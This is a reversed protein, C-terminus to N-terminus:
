YNTVKGTERKLQEFRMMMQKLLRPNKEAINNTQGPDDKINYLEYTSKANYPPIMIFDGQRYAYNFMGEIVLESRGKDSKGLFANLTNQSDTRENYPQGVLAALSALLDMQCVFTDSVSPKLQEPWRVMFPICTGGNYMSCKWGRFPGAPKHSGVLEEAEDKYGDDLVPGNDSTFIVLTNETLGLRDLEKLFENVCWDAEM